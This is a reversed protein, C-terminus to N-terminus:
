RFRNSSFNKEEAQCFNVCLFNWFVKAAAPLMKSRQKIMYLLSTSEQNELYLYAIRQHDAYREVSEPCICVGMNEAILPLVSAVQNYKGMINLQGSNASFWRCIEDCIPQRSPIFLPESCIEDMKVSKREALHNEKSVAVVWTEKKLFQTEFKSMDLPDRIIGIDLIGEELQRCIENSNECLIDYGIKPYKQRFLPLVVPLISASCTETVGILLTGKAERQQMQSLEAATYDAMDLIYRAQQMLYKGEDTLEIKRKGRLFLTVGLEEELQSLQRSLPPQSMHLKRAAHTINQEKAVMLFYKLTRLEM